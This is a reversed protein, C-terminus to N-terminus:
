AVLHDSASRLDDALTASQLSELEGSPDIRFFLSPDREDSTAKSHRWSCDGRLCRINTSILVAVGQALISM